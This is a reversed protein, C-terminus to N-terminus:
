RRPPKRGLKRAAARTGPACKRTKNTRPLAADATWILGVEEDPTSCTFLVREPASSLELVRPTHQLAALLMAHHLEPAQSHKGLARRALTKWAFTRLSLNRGVSAQWMSAEDLDRKQVARVFRKMSARNLAHVVRRANTESDAYVSVARGGAEVCFAFTHVDARQSHLEDIACELIGSLWTQLETM